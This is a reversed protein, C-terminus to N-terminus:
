VIMGKGDMAELRKELHAVLDAAILAIRKPDGVLATDLIPRARPRPNPAIFRVNVSQGGPAVEAVIGARSSALGDTGTMHRIILSELGKETIDATSM